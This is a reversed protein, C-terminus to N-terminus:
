VDCLRVAQQLSALKDIALDESRHIHVVVDVRQEAVGVDAFAVEGLGEAQFGDAGAQADVVAVDEVERAVQAGFDTGVLFVGVVKFGLHEDDVAHAEFVQGGFAAIDEQLDDVVAMRSRRRERASMMGM